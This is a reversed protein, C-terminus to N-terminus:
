ILAGPQRPDCKRYGHHLRNEEDNHKHTWDTRLAEFLPHYAVHEPDRTPPHYYYCEDQFTGNM